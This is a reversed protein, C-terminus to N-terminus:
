VSPPRGTAGAAFSEPGERAVAHLPGESVQLSQGIGQMTCSPLRSARDRQCRLVAHMCDTSAGASPMQVQEPEPQHLGRHGQEADLGPWAPEGCHREQDYGAARRGKGPRPEGDGTRPCRVAFTRNAFYRAGRAGDPLLRPSHLHAGQQLETRSRLDTRGVPPRPLLRLSEWLRSFRMTGSLPNCMCLSNGESRCM